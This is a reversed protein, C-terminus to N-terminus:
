GMLGDPHGVYETTDGFGTEKLRRAAERNTMFMTDTLGSRHYGLKRLKERDAATRAVPIGHSTRVGRPLLTGDAARKRLFSRM